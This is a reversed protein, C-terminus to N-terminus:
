QEDVEDFLDSQETDDEDYDYMPLNEIKLSYDDKGWECKGLVASPIKRITINSM